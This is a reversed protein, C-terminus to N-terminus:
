GRDLFDRLCTEVSGNAERLLRTAEKRELELVREIESVAKSDVRVLSLAEERRERVERERERRAIFLLTTRRRERRNQEREEKGDNEDESQGTSSMHARLCKKRENKLKKKTHTGVTPVQYWYWPVICYLVREKTM